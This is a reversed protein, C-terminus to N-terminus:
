SFTIRCSQEDIKSLVIAEENAMGFPLGIHLTLKRLPELEVVSWSVRLGFSATFLLRDGVALRRAPGEILKADQWTLRAPDTLLEWIREAPARAVDTPCTEFADDM